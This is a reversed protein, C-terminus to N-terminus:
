GEGRLRLSIEARDHGRVETDTDHASDLSSPGVMRAPRQEQGTEQISAYESAGKKSTGCDKHAPSGLRKEMRCSSTEEDGFTLLPGFNEDLAFDKWYIV